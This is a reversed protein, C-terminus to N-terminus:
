LSRFCKLILTMMYFRSKRQDTDYRAIKMAHHSYNRITVRNAIITAVPSCIKLIKMEQFGDSENCNYDFICFHNLDYLTFLSM